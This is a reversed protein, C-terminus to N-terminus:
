FFALVWCSTLTGIWLVEDLHLFVSIDCGKVITVSHALGDIHFSAFGNLDVSLPVKAVAAVDTVRGVPADGGIAITRLVRKVEDM